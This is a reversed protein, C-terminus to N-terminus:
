DGFDLAVDGGGNQRPVGLELQLKPVFEQTSVRCYEITCNVRGYQQRLTGNCVPFFNVTGHTAGGKRGLMSM